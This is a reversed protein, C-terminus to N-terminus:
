PAIRKFEVVLVWPNVSWGDARLKTLSRQTPTM